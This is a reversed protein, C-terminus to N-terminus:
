LLSVRGTLKEDFDKLLALIEGIHKYTEIKHKLSHKLGGEGEEYQISISITKQKEDRTEQGM